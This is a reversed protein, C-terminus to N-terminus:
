KYVTKVNMDWMSLHFRETLNKQLITGNEFKVDYMINKLIYELTM